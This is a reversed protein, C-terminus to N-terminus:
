FLAQHLSSLVRCIHSPIEPRRGTGFGILNLPRHGLVKYSSVLGLDALSSRHMALSCSCRESQASPISRQCLM